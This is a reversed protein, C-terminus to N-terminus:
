SSFPLGPGKGPLGSSCPHPCHESHEVTSYKEESLDTEASGLLSLARALDALRLCVCFRLMEGVKKKRVTM